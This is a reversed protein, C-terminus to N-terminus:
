RASRVRPLVVRSHPIYHGSGVVPVATAYPKALEFSVLRHVPDVVLIWAPGALTELARQLTIPGLSRHVQPLPERMLVDLRPDTAPAPALRYGSRELLHEFAPRLTTIQAPFRIRVVVQLLDAQAATATPAITSYRGVRVPIDAAAIQLATPRRRSAGQYRIEARRNQARGAKIENPAVYHSRGLGTTTVTEHAVGAEVLVAKTAVARRLALADNYPQPGIDDTFGTVALLRGAELDSALTHIARRESGSIEHSAFPFHVTHLLPGTM